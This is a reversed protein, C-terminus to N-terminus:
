PQGSSPDITTTLAKRFASYSPLATAGPVSGGERMADPHGGLYLHVASPTKGRLALVMDGIGAVSEPRLISLAVARVEKGHALRAIEEIPLDPGPYVPRWGSLAATLAALLAGFEHRQGSVTTCLVSPAHNPPQAAQIQDGLVERVVESALHEEAIGLNGRAWASGIERLLPCLFEEVFSLDPSRLAARALVQRLGATDRDEVASMADRRELLLLNSSPDTEGMRARSRDQETEEPHLLDFLAETPLAAILGISHGAAVADRLLRIRTIELESYRRQGGKSRHPDVAGYRREWARLLHAPVGTRSVVVRVPFLAESSPESSLRSTM